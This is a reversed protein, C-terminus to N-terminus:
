EKERFGISEFEMDEVSRIKIQNHPKIGRNAFHKDFETVLRAM